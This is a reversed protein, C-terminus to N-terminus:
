GIGRATASTRKTTSHYGSIAMRGGKLQELEAGLFAKMAGIRPMLLANIELIATILRLRTRYLPHGQWTPLNSKLLPLLTEDQACAASQLAQLRAAHEHVGSYDCSDLMKLLKEAHQQLERYQESSVALLKETQPAFGTM